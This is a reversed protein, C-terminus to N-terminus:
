VRLSWRVCWAPLANFYAAQNEKVLSMYTPQICCNISYLKFPVNVHTNERCRRMTTAGALIALEFFSSAESHWDYDDYGEIAAEKRAARRAMSEEWEHRM